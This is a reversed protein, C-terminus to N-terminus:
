CKLRVYIAHSFHSLEQSIASQPSQYIFTYHLSYSTKHNVSARRLAESACEDIHHNHRSTLAAFQRHLCSAGFLRGLNCPYIAACLSTGERRWGARPTHSCRCMRNILRQMIWALYWKLQQSKRGMESKARLRSAGSGFSCKWKYENEDLAIHRSIHSVKERERIMDRSFPSLM